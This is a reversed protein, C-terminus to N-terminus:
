PVRSLADFKEPRTLTVRHGAALSQVTNTSFNYKIIKQNEHLPDELGLRKSKSLQLNVGDKRLFM